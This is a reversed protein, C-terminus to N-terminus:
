HGSLRPADDDAAAGAGSALRTCRLGRGHQFVMYVSDQPPKVISTGPEDHIVPWDLLRSYFEALAAPDPAEIATGWWHGAARGRMVRHYACGIGM